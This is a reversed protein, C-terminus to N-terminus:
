AKPQLPQGHKHEKEISRLKAEEDSLMHLISQRKQENLETALLSRFHQINQQAIFRDM